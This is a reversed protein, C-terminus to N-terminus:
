ICYELSLIDDIFIELGEKTTISKRMSNYKYVSDIVTVYEGGDKTKDPVFYTIRSVINEEPFDLLYSLKYNIEEKQNDALTIRKGTERGTEFITEEYGTLASFPAFQAARMHREMPKHKKSKHHPLKIIDEYKSKDM